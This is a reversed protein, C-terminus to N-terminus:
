LFVSDHAKLFRLHMTFVLSYNWIVKFAVYSDTNNTLQMTCSIQKKVEVVGNLMYNNACVTNCLIFNCHSSILSLCMFM